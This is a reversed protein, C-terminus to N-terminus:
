LCSYAESLQNLAKTQSRDIDRHWKESGTADNDSHWILRHTKADQRKFKEIHRDFCSRSNSLIAVGLLIFAADLVIEGAAAAPNARVDVVKRHLAAVGSAPSYKVVYGDLMLAFALTEEKSALRFPLEAANSVYLLNNRVVFRAGDVTLTEDREKDCAGALGQLCNASAYSGIGACGALHSCILMSIVLRKM